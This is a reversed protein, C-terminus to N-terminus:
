GKTAKDGVPKCEDVVIWGTVADDADAATLADGETKQCESVSTFNKSAIVPSGNMLFILFVLVFNM